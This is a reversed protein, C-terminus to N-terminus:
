WVMGQNNVLHLINEAIKFDGYGPFGKELDWCFCTCGNCYRSINPFLASLPPIPYMQNILAYRVIVARIFDTIITSIVLLVLDMVILRALEQGFMTEWCLKRLREKETENLSILDEDTIRYETTNQCWGGPQESVVNETITETTTTIQALKWRSTPKRTTGKKLKRTVFSPNVTPSTALQSPVNKILDNSSNAQQTFNTLVSLTTSKNWDSTEKFGDTM